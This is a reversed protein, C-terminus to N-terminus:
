RATASPEHIRRLFEAHLRKTVAGVKGDAVANGDISTVGLVELSTGSMFVEDASRLATVDFAEERTELDIAAACNLLLSQTVGHLVAENRLPFRLVNGNVIFINSATCERVEGAETVFIADDYGRRDAETRALINPLLTIAKIYCNAWRTEPTTMVSMGCRVLDEPVVPRPKFTMIVTPTLGEPILHVRPATGRTLQVYIMADDFGSRRLGESLVDELPKNDFDYVLGIAAASRRLRQMHSELQFLRGDYAVIVEYVGDGFQMGRDEISVMADAIPMFRGNVYALEPM